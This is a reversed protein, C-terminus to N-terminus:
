KDSSEDNSYLVSCNIAKFCDTKYAEWATSVTFFVSALASSILLVPKIQPNPLDGPSALPLGNWYEQRSVRVSLPAQCAITRLTASDSAVSTVQCAHTSQCKRM